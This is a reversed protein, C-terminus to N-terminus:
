SIFKNEVLLVKIAIQSYQQKSPTWNGTKGNFLYGNYSFEINFKFDPFFNSLRSKYWEEFAYKNQFKFVEELDLTHYLEFYYAPIEPVSQGELPPENRVNTPNEAASIIFNTVKTIKNIWFQDTPNLLNEMFDIPYVHKKTLTKNAVSFFILPRPFNSSFVWQTASDLKILTARIEDYKGYCVERAFTLIQEQNMPEKHNEFKKIYKM